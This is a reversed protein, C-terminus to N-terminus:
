SSGVESDSTDAFRSAQMRFMTAYTGGRELLEEHSGVEIVRGDEIVNIRDALRVTSFRHSIVLTTLGATIELFREYFAAEGRADLWATPEDLVLVQAGHSAAFLARALAV